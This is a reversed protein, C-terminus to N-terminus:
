TLSSPPGGEQHQQADCNDLARLMVSTTCTIICFHSVLCELLKDTLSKADVLHDLWRMQSLIQRPLDNSTVSSTSSSSSDAALAPLQELLLQIVAPQLPLQSAHHVSTHTCYVHDAFAKLMVHLDPGAIVAPAICSYECM